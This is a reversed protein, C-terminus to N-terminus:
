KSFDVCQLRRAEPYKLNVNYVSELFDVVMHCSAGFIIYKNGESNIYKYKGVAILTEKLTYTKESYNNKDLFYDGPVKVIEAVEANDRLFHVNKQVAAIFPTIIFKKPTIHDKLCGLLTLNTESVGIEEKTERLATQKLDQDITPDFKGGPFAMEGSHKDNKHISRKIFLIEYPKDEHPILPIIVASKIFRSDNLCPRNSDEYDFLNNKIKDENFILTKRM